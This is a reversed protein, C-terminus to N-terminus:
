ILMQPSAGLGEIHVALMNLFKRIMRKFSVIKLVTTGAINFHTYRHGWVASDNM